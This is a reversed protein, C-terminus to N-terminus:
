VDCLSRTATYDIIFPVEQPNKHLSSSLSLSDSLSRSAAKYSAFRDPSRAAEASDQLSLSVSLASSYTTVRLLVDKKTVVTSMNASNHLIM